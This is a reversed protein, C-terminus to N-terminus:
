ARLSLFQRVRGLFNRKAEPAPLAAAVDRASQLGTRRAAVVSSIHDLLNPNAMAVDRFDKAAIELVTADGIARVTATRRDGTLLSMEGFFGGTPIVAVEQGSPELVVRVQGTLVVFM